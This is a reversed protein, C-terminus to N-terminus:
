HWRSAAASRLVSFAAVSMGFIAARSFRSVRNPEFALIQCDLDAQKPQHNLAL